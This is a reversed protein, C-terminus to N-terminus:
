CLVDVAAGDEEKLEEATDEEGELKTGELALSDGETRASELLSEGLLSSRWSLLSTGFKSLGEEVEFFSDGRFASCISSAFRGRCTPEYISSEGDAM